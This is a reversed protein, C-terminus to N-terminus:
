APDPEDKDLRKGDIERGARANEEREYEKEARTRGFRRRNADAEAERALRQKEKRAQRLNVIEAM